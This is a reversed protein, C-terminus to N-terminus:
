VRFHIKGNAHLLWQGPASEVVGGPRSYIRFDSESEKVASLVIQVIRTENEPLFMPSQFEIESLAGPEKGLSESAAAMTMEIYTTTPAVLMGQVTYDNLYNLRRRDLEVEWFYMEEPFASKFRRDLSTPRDDAQERAWRKPAWDSFRGSCSGGMEDEFWCRDRQWPYSPLTVCKGKVSYFKDWEVPYGAVFLAGLSQLMVERADAKRRMSPLAMGAKGFHDLGQKIATLLLPHPSVELFLDHGSETLRRIADSFLVPERLNRMWYAADLSQSDILGGTVTSYIPISSHRPRIGSLAQLIENHLPDMQPSHSAIDVNIMRCFVDDRSLKGILEDLASTSGSLVTSRPSNSVAISLDAEYGKLVRRAQELSLEVVAM